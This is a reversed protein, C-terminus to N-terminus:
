TAAPISIIVVLAFIGVLGVTILLKGISQDLIETERRLGYNVRLFDWDIVLNTNKLKGAVFRGKYAGSYLILFWKIYTGILAFVPMFPILIYVFYIFIIPITVFIM